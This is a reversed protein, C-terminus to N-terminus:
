VQLNNFDNKFSNIDEIRARGNEACSAKASREMWYYIIFHVKVSAYWKPIIIKRVITSKLEEPYPCGNEYAYKLCDFHGNKAANRCTYYDWPFDNKHAYKLCDLHGNKAASECTVDDLPYGNEHAYKLCALHGYNAATACTEKTWPCRNIHAYELCKLHGNEAISYCTYKYWPCGNKYAYM